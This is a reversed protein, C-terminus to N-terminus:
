GVRPTRPTSMGTSRLSNSVGGFGDSRLAHDLPPLSADGYAARQNGQSRPVKIPKQAARTKHAHTVQRLQLDKEAFSRDKAALSRELAGNDKRMSEVVMMLEQMREMLKLNKQELRERMLKEKHLEYHSVILASDKATVEARLALLAEPPQDGQAADGAGGALQQLHALDVERHKLMQEREDSIRTAEALEDKCSQLERMMLRKEDIMQDLKQQHYELDLQLHRIDSVLDAIQQGQRHAADPDGNDGEGGRTSYVQQRWQHAETRAMTLETYLHALQTNLVSIQQYAAALLQSEQVDESPLETSADQSNDKLGLPLNSDNQSAVLKLQQGM